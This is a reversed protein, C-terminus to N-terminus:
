KKRRSQIKKTPTLSLWVLVAAAQPVLCLPPDQMEHVVARSPPVLFSLCLSWPILLELTHLPRWTVGPADWPWNRLVNVATLWCLPTLGRPTDMPLLGAEWSWPLGVRWAGGLEQVGTRGLPGGLGTM